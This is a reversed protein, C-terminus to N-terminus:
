GRKKFRECLCDLCIEKGDVEYTDDPALECECDDCLHVEVNRRPCASGRCPYGAVACDCCQNEYVIMLTGGTKIYKRRGGGM